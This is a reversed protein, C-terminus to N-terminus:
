PCTNIPRCVAGAPCCGGPAVAPVAAGCPLGPAIVRTCGAAACTGGACVLPPTCCVTNTCAGDVTLATTQCGQLACVGNNCVTQATGVTICCLVSTCIQGISQTITAPTCGANNSVCKGLSCTNGLACCTLTTAPAVISTTCAAGLGGLGVACQPQAVAVTTTAAATTTRTTDQNSTTGTFSTVTPNVTNPNAPNTPATGTFGFRAAGIKRPREALKKLRFRANQPRNTTSPVSRGEKVRSAGSIACLVLLSLVSIFIVLTVHVAM